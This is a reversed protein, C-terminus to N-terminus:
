NVTRAASALLGIPGGDGFLSNNNEPASDNAGPVDRGFGSKGVDSLQQFIRQRASPTFGLMDGFREVAQM